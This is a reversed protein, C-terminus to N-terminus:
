RRAGSEIWRAISCVDGEDLGGGGPPMTTELSWILRSCVPEGPKVWREDILLEYTQVSARFHLGSKVAGELHLLSHCSCSQGPALTREYVNHWTPEYSPVCTEVDTDIVCPEPPTDFVLNPELCGAAGLLPLLALRRRRRTGM